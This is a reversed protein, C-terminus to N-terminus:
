RGPQSESARVPRFGRGPARGGSSGARTGSASRSAPPRGRGRPRRPRIRRELRRSRSARSDDERRVVRRQVRERSVAVPERAKETGKGRPRRELRDLVLAVLELGCGGCADVGGLRSIRPAPRLCPGRGVLEPQRNEDLRLVRVAELAAEALLGEAALSGVLDLAGVRVGLREPRHHLLENGAPVLLQVAEAAVESGVTLREAEERPSLQLLDRGSDAGAAGAFGDPHLFDDVGPQPKQAFSPKWPMECTSNM